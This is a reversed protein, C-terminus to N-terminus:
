CGDNAAEPMGHFRLVMCDWRTYVGARRMWHFLQRVPMFQIRIM